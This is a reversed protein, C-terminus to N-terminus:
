RIALKYLRNIRRSIFPRTKRTDANLVDTYANKDCDKKCFAADHEVFLMTSPFDSLLTEIQMRSVVDVFNLPEDWIYLHAQECLSGAILIKKKQGASMASLDRDLEERNMALKDLVARLLSESIGRKDPLIRYADQFSRPTRRCM